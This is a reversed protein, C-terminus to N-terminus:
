CDRSALELIRAAIHLRPVCIRFEGRRDGELVRMSRELTNVIEERESSPLREKLRQFAKEVKEHLQSYMELALASDGAAELALVLDYRLRLYEVESYGPAELGRQFWEVALKPVGKEIYCIGLMRASELFHSKANVTNQFEAIAEDILGLERYAIGLNYRTHHGEEGLGHVLAPLGAADSPPKRRRRMRIVRFLRGLPKEDLAPGDCVAEVEGCKPCAALDYPYLLGCRSCMKEIADAHHGGPCGDDL